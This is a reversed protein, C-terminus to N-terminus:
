FHKLAAPGGSLLEQQATNLDPKDAQPPEQQEAEHVPDKGDTGANFGQEAHAAHEATVKTNFNDRCEVDCKIGMDELADAQTSFDM